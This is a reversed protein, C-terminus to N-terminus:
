QCLENNVSFYMERYDDANRKNVLENDFRKIIKVKTEIKMPAQYCIMEM